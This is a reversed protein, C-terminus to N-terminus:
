RKFIRELFCAIRGIPSQGKMRGSAAKVSFGELKM